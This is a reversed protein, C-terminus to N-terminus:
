YRWYSVEKDFLLVIPINTVFSLIVYFPYTRTDYVLFTLASFYAYNFTTVIGVYDIIFESQTEPSSM